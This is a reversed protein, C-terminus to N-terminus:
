ALAKLSTRLLEEAQPNETGNKVLYIFSEEVAKQAASKQYGLSILALVTDHKPGDHVSSQAKAAWSDAVGVKGRLEVCIREATKAGIGKVKSLAPADNAVVLAKFTEIPIGSLIALAIKPGIGTVLNILLRFLNREEPSAFGYLLHETERIVQHTLVKASRGEEPVLAEYTPKSILLLYGIGGTEIITHTPLVQTLNGRIHEIM